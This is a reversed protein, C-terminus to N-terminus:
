LLDDGNDFALGLMVCLTIVIFPIIIFIGLDLLITTECECM